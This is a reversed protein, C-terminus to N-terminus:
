VETETMFSSSGYAPTIKAAMFAHSTGGGKQSIEFILSDIIDMNKSFIEPIFDGYLDNESPKELGFNATTEM